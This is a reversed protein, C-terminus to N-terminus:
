SSEPAFISAGKSRQSTLRNFIEAYKAAIVGAEYPAYADHNPRGLRRGDRVLTSIGDAIGDRLSSLESESGFALSVGGGAASLIAHASSMRHFLSIFPRGAMLTPYIKSATYHPEDSGLLLIADSNAQISLAELYPLRQPVERVVDAVGEVEALPMVLYCTSNNPNATTGVFNLRIRAYVDPARSRLLAVARLLTCVTEIVPPWITGVYSLNFSDHELGFSGSEPPMARLADYDAPDGGIPIAVMRSRDLWRYRAAMEENQRESVSTIFDAARVAKPELWEALQHTLGGKSCRPLTAGWRSVWPDQFDLVVPVGFRQRIGSAMLMPYYSGTILVAGVRRKALLDFLARRLPKWARLSIDGFGFPRCVRPSLASVKVIEVSPPVLAALDPDLREEHYAEDVCLVIPTWGARPLHKALLRARHVGALM